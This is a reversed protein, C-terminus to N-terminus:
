LLISFIFYSSSFPTLNNNFSPCLCFLVWFNSRTGSLKTLSCILREFLLRQRRIEFYESIKKSISMTRSLSITLKTEELKRKRRGVKDIMPGWPYDPRTQTHYLSVGINFYSRIILKCEQCISLIPKNVRAPNRDEIRVIMACAGGFTFFLRLIFSRSM